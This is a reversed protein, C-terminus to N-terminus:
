SARRQCDFYRRDRHRAITVPTRSKPVKQVFNYRAVHYSPDFGFFNRRMKELEASRYSDLPRATEDSDRRSKKDALFKAFEDRESLCQARSYAENCFGDRTEGFRAEALGLSVAERTGMPLRADAIIRANEAGVYRPLLYTWFESGFLNGMDKYHPSLIVGKRLWVFDAARALFVGGAGANGQLASITLHSDTRIIEAALDDIANINRWSEEAASANAEILNLHMGNSWFDRGGMLVITKTPRACAKRYADLLRECQESGMAGNYFEFHLVGVSDYEEYRIESYGRDSDLPIDEIDDLHPALAVTAPLKFHHGSSTNIVHGIWITGDTTAVCLAPGSKAVVEGPNGSFHAANKADFLRVPMGLITDDVGPVGDASRIKCLVTQTDDRHWDIKRDKQRVLPRERGLVREDDHRVFEPVYSRSEFREIALHVAKVAAEAVENRYLSSKTAGERMSFTVSAWVPGADMETEAQLVTVGWNEEGNLIAWDLASPGRDGKVGPHVIFCPVNKWVREPIARKLFPAVVLDPVFMENAQNLVDDNIDFEVSVDHGCEELEVFIRQSLSNFGHVLLLIRM